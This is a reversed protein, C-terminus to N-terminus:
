CAAAEVALLAMGRVGSTPGHRALRIDPPRIRGLAHRRAAERLREAARPLLSLGGGLVVCGPDLTLQLTRLCEGALDAWVEVAEEAAPEGAALARGVERGDAHRGGRERAIRALGPGALYAEVCGARGCGCPWVPLGHRALAAVPMGVHGIEVSLGVHRPAPRGDVCLAAGVGTGIVLGLVLRMGQGAGDRAESVAFGVADNGLTFDRGFRSELAAGLGDAAPPLNAVIAAGTEPDVAGPLGIGVPLWPDGAEMTLWDIEASVADLLADLSATPTPARRSRVVRLAEDFLCSAIKTGGLDIAGCTLRAAGRREPCRREPCHREPPIPRRPM